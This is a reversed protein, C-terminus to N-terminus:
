KMYLCKGTEGVYTLAVVVSTIVRHALAMDITDQIEAIVSGGPSYILSYLFYM